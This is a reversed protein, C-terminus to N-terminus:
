IFSAQEKGTGVFPNGADPIIAQITDVLSGRTEIPELIKQTEQKQVEFRCTESCPNCPKQSFKFQPFVHPVNEARVNMNKHQINSKKCHSQRFIAESEKKIPKLQDPYAKHYKTQSEDLDPAFSHSKKKCARKPLYESKDFGEKFLYDAEVQYYWVFLICLFFGFVIHKFSYLVILFIAILKGLVTHSIGVFELPYFYYLIAFLIPLGQVSFEFFESDKM